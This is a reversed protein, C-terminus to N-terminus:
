RVAAVLALGVLVVNRVVSGPGVPRTSLRGFCACPPRTGGSALRIVLLATFSVLLAAAALASWPRGVGPVLLAGLGLEVWPVIPIAWGPAGLAAAQAPWQPSIAKLVGSALLVAGVVAGAAWAM